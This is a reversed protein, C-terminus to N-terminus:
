EKYTPGTPNTTVSEPISTPLTRFMVRVGSPTTITCFTYSPM